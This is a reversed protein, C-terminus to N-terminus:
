KRSRSKIEEILKPRASEGSEFPIFSGNGAKAMKTMQLIAAQDKGFGVVSLIVGRAEYAKILNEVAKPDANSGNFIGDTVVIVQNNGGDIFQDIAEAFAMELGLVGNTTGKAELNNIPPLILEKQDGQVNTMIENTKSAFTIVSIRDVNRLEQAMYLMATKLSDIKGNQKMSGSVDILFVINNARYEKLSFNPNLDPVTDEVVVVQTDIKITDIVLPEITDKELPQVELPLLEYVIKEMDKRIGVMLNLDRYGDAKALSIYLGVPIKQKFEGKKNTYISEIGVFKVVSNAIPEKTIKDVVIGEIIYEQQKVKGNEDFDPCQTLANDAMAKIQGKVTLKVPENSASSYLLIEESFNGTKETYFYVRIEGKEGSEIRNRPYEVIVNRSMKPALIYFPDFSTNEFTFIAPPNDWVKVTGFNYNPETILLGKFGQPYLSQIFFCVLLLVLYRRM